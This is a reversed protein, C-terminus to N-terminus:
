HSLGSLRAALLKVLQNLLSALQAKLTVIFAARVVPDTLDLPKTTTTTATEGATATTKLEISATSVNSSNYPGSRFQAYVTKTGDGSLLTWDISNKFPQWQGDRFDSYNSIEMELTNLTSAFNLTVRTSDTTKAKNNINMVEGSYSTYSHAPGGGYVIPPQQEDQVFNKTYDGFQALGYQHVANAGPSNNFDYNYYHISGGTFLAKGVILLSSPLNDLYPDWFGLSGTKANVDSIDYNDYPGLKMFPGVILLEGNAYALKDVYYHSDYVIDPNFDEDIAGTTKNVKAVYVAPSDGVQTFAGGIYVSDPSSVISYVDESGPAEPNSVNPNWDTAAGTTLSLAAVNNRPQGGIADFFGGVYLVNDALTLTNIYNDGDKEDFTPNWDTFLNNTDQDIKFAVLDKRTIEDQTVTLGNAPGEAYLLNGSIAMNDIKCNAGVATNWDTADGTTTDLAALCNRYKGGISHFEGSAYLINNKVTMSLVPDDSNPDFATPEGTTLNLAAINNRAVWGHPQNENAPDTPDSGPYFVKDFEGGIYLINGFIALSKVSGGLNHNGLDKAVQWLDARPTMPFNMFQFAYDDGTSAEKILRDNVDYIKSSLQYPNVTNGDVINNLNFTYTYDSENGGNSPTGFTIVIHQGDIALTPSAENNVSIYSGLTAGSVNIGKPYDIEVKKVKIYATTTYETPPTAPTATAGIDKYSNTSVEEIYGTSYATDTSIRYIKYGTAIKNGTSDLYEDWTLQNYNSESLNENGASTLIETVGTEQGDIIATVGYDYQKTGSVGVNSVTLSSIPELYGPVKSIEIKHSDAEGVVSNTSNASMDYASGMYARAGTPSAIVLSIVLVFVLFFSVLSKYRKM